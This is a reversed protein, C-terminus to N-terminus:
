SRKKWSQEPGHIKRERRVRTSRLKERMKKGQIVRREKERSAFAGPYCVNRVRRTPGKKSASKATPALNAQVSTRQTPLPPPPREPPKKQNVLIDHGNRRAQRRAEQPRLGKRKM